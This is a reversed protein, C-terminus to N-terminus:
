LNRKNKPIPIIVSKFFEDPYIGHVVMSNFLLMLHVKLKDSGHLIPYSYFEGDSNIKHEKLCSIAEKLEKFEYKHKSYYKEKCCVDQINKDSVNAVNQLQEANYSM